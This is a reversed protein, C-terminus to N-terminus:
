RFVSSTSMLIASRPAQFTSLLHSDTAPITFATSFLNTMRERGRGRPSLGTVCKQKMERGDPAVIGCEASSAGVEVNPPM